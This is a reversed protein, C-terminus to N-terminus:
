RVMSWSRTSVQYVTDASPKSLCHRALESICVITRGYHVVFTYACFVIADRMLLAPRPRALRVKSGPRRCGNAPRRVVRPAAAVRLTGDGGGAGGAAREAPVARRGGRRAMSPSTMRMRAHMNLRHNEMCLVPSARLIERLIFMVEGSM